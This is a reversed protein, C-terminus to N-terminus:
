IALATPLPSFAEDSAAFESAIARRLEPQNEKVPLVYEGSKDLITQCVDRQCFVADGTVVRGQLVLSKLLTLAAKHENTNQPVFTQGLVCGSEHDIAALLQVSRAHSQITGRLTKADMALAALNGEPRALLPFNEDIWEQLAHELADPQLAMLLDRYCNETPPKRWFGLLHWVWPEQLHIWQAIAGYGRAGSLVACIVTALMAVLSHRRGKRGRPDAVRQLFHL